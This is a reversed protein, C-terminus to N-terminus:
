FRFRSYRERRFCRASRYSSTLRQRIFCKCKSKRQSSQRETQWKLIKKRFFEFRFLRNAQLLTMTQSNQKLDKNSQVSDTADTQAYAEDGFVSSFSDPKRRPPYLCCCFTIGSCPFFAPISSFIKSLIRMITGDGRIKEAM